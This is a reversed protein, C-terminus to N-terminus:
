AIKSLLFIVLRVILDIGIIAIMPSLDLMGISHPIKKALNMVPDTVDNLIIAFRNTPRGGSGMSFWSFLIRGIIAYTLLNGLVIVFQSFYYIVM